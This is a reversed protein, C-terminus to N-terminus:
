ENIKTLPQNSASGVVVIICESAHQQSSNWFLFLPTTFLAQKDIFIVNIKM